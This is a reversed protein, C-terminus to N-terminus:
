EKAHALAPAYPLDHGPPLDEEEQGDQQLPQLEAHCWIHFHVEGGGVPQGHLMGATLM